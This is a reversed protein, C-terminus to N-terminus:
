QTLGIRALLDKFQPEERLLDFRPEIKLYVLLGFREQYAQELLKLAEDKKGLGAYIMALHYPSVYTQRARENLQAIV